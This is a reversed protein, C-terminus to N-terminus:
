TIVHDVRMSARSTRRANQDGFHRDPGEYAKRDLLICFRLQIKHYREIIRGSPDIVVASNYLRDGDRHPTGVVAYIGSERCADAVRREAEALREAASQTIVDEFYGTLACEPFVAVQVGEEALRCLHGRICAINRDLDRSSRMQVAAVKLSSASMGSNAAAREGANQAFSPTTLSLLIMMTAALRSRNM